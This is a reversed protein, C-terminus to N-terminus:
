FFEIYQTGIGLSTIDVATAGGDTSFQFTTATINFILLNIVDLGGPLTDTTYLTFNYTNGIDLLNIGPSIISCTNASISNVVFVYPINSIGIMKRLGLYKVLIQDFHNGGAGGDYSLSGDFRLFGLNVMADSIEKPFTNPNKLSEIFQEIKKIREEM